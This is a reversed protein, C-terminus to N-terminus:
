EQKPEEPATTEAVPKEDVARFARALDETLQVVTQVEGDPPHGGFFDLLVVRVHDARTRHMERTVDLLSM